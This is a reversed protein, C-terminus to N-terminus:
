EVVWVWVPAQKHGRAREAIQLRVEEAQDEPGYIILAHGRGRQVCNGLTDMFDLRGKIFGEADAIGWIHDHWPGDGPTAPVLCVAVRHLRGTEQRTKDLWGSTNSFPPQVWIIGEDVPAWEQTLGDEGRRIDITAAAKVFSASSYCPDLAIPGMWELLWPVTYYEDSTQPIAEDGLELGPLHM